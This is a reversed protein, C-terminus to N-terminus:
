EACMLEFWYESPRGEGKMKFRCAPPGGEGTQEFALSVGEGKMRFTPPGGRGTGKM